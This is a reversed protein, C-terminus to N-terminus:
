NCSFEKFILKIKHPENFSHNSGPHHPKHNKFKLLGITHFYELLPELYEAMDRRPNQLLYVFFNEAEAEQQRADMHAIAEIVLQTFKKM